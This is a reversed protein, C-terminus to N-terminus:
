RKSPCNIEEGLGYYYIDGMIAYAKACDQGLAANVYKRAEQFNMEFGYNGALYAEAIQCQALSQGLNAATYFYKYAEEEDKELGAGYLYCLGYCFTGDANGQDTAKKLWTIALNVDATINAEQDGFLYCRGLEAQADAYGLTASSKLNQFWGGYNKSDYHMNAELFYGEANGQKVAKLVLEWARIEDRVVGTGYYYCRALKVQAPAYNKKAAKTLWYIAQNGDHQVGGTGTRYCEALHYMAEKDGKDAYKKFFSADQASISFSISMMLVLLFIQKIKM